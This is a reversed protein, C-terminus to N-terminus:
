YVIPMPANSEFVPASPASAWRSVPVGEPIAEAPASAVRVRPRASPTAIRVRRDTKEFLVSEEYPVAADFRSALEDQEVARNFDEQLIAMAVPWAWVSFAGVGAFAAVPISRDSHSAEGRSVILEHTIKANRYGAWIGWLGLTIVALLVDVGPSLDRRGTERRLEDTTMYLWAYAYLGFTLLTLAAVALPNRKKM